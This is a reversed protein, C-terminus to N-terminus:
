RAQPPQPPWTRLAPQATPQPPPPAQMTQPPVMMGGQPQPQPPHQYQPQPPPPPLTAAPPPPPPPPLPQNAPISVMYLFSPYGEVGPGPKAILVDIGIMQHIQSLNPDRSFVMGSYPYGNILVQLDYLEPENPDETLIPVAHNVTGRIFQGPPQGELLERIFQM